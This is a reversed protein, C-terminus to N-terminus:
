LSELNMLSVQVPQDGLNELDAQGQHFAQLSPATQDEHAELNGQVLPSVLSELHDLCTPSALNEQCDLVAQVKQAVHNAQVVLRFLIELCDLGLPGAQYVLVDQNELHLLDAQAEHTVQNQLDQLDMQGVLHPDELGM